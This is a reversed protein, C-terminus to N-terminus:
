TPRNFREAGLAIWAGVVMSVLAFLGALPLALGPMRLSALGLLFATAPLIALRRGAWRHLAAADHVRRYDVGTLPRARAGAYGVVLAVAGLVPSIALLAIGLFRLGDM